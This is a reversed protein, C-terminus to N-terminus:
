LLQALKTRLDAEPHQEESASKLRHVIKRSNEIWILEHFKGNFKHYQHEESIAGESGVTESIDYIQEWHNKYDKGSMCLSRPYCYHPGIMAGTAQIEPCANSSMRM